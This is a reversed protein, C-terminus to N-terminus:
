LKFVNNQNYFKTKFRGEVFYRQSVGEAHENSLKFHGECQYTKPSYADFVLTGELSFSGEREVGYKVPDEIMIVAFPLQVTGNDRHKTLYARLEGYISRQTNFKPEYTIEYNKNLLPFKEKKDFVIGGYLYFCTKPEQNSELRFQLFVVSDPQMQIRLKNSFPMFGGMYLDECFTTADKYSVGNITAGCLLVESDLENTKKCSAFLVLSLIFAFIIKRM